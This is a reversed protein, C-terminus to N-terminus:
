QIKYIQHLHKVLTYQVSSILSQTWYYIKANTPNFRQSLVVILM